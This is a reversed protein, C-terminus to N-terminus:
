RTEYFNVFSFVFRSPSRPQLIIEEKLLFSKGLAFLKEVDQSDVGAALLKLRVEDNEQLASLCASSIAGPPASGIDLLAGPVFSRERKQQSSL